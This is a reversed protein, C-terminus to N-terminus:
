PQGCVEEFTMGPLEPAHSGALWAWANVDGDRVVQGRAGQGSYVWKGDQGLLFYAWYSCTGLTRCQCLCPQQPFDCGQHDISCVLAGMPNSEDFSVALGSRQLLDEGTTRTGDFQVCAQKLTGDPELVLLGARGGGAARPTSASCAALLTLAAGLAAGFVLRTASTCTKSDVRASRSM